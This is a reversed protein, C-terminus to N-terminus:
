KMRREVEEVGLDNIMRLASSKTQEVFESRSYIFFDLSEIAELLSAAKGIREHKDEMNGIEDALESNGTQLENVTEVLWLADEPDLVLGRKTSNSVHKFKKWNFGSDFYQDVIENM